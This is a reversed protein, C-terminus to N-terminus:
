ENEQEKQDVFNLVSQVITEIDGAETDVRLGARGYVPYRVEAMDRLVKEPDPARLLPRDNSRGVRQLLVPIDAYMWISHTRGFILEANEPRMVAGGGTSVVRVPGGRALVDRIVATEMDRFAQEGQTEFIRAISMGAQEEIIDDTDCFPLRVAKAIARGIRTKGSGMMGVLVVPRGPRTSKRQATKM